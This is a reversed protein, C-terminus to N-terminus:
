PLKKGEGTIIVIGGIHLAPARAVEAGLQRYTMMQM